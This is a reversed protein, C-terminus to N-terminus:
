DRPFNTPNDDTLEGTPQTPRTQKPEHYTTRKGQSVTLTCENENIRM